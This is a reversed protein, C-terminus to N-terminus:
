RPVPLGRDRLSALARDLTARVHAAVFSAREQARAASDLASRAETLDPKPSAASPLAPPMGPFVPMSPAPLDPLSPLEPAVRAARYREFRETPPAEFAPVPPAPRPAPPPPVVDPAPEREAPIEPLPEPSPPPPEPVPAPAPVFAPPEEELPGSLGELVAAVQAVAVDEAAPPPSQVFFALALAAAAGAAKLATIAGAGAVAATAASPALGKPLLVALAPLGMAVGRRRLHGQVKDLARNVRMAAAHLTIGLRSGVDRLSAGEFYRLRLTLREEESLLDLAERVARATEPLAVDHPPNAPRPSASERKRRRIEGRLLSISVRRATERLWMPLVPEPPLSGARRSLLLFVAQTADEALHHDRLRRRAEAFVLPAHRRVIDDM